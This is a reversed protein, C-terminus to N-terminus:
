TYHDKKTTQTEPHKLHHQVTMKAINTKHLIFKDSFISEKTEASDAINDKHPILQKFQTNQDM